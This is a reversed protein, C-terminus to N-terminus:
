ALRATATPVVQIDTTSHHVWIPTNYLYSYDIIGPPNGAGSVSGAWFDPMVGFDAEYGPRAAQLTDAIAFVGAERATRLGAPDSMESAAVQVIEGAMKRQRHERVRESPQAHPDLRILEDALDM